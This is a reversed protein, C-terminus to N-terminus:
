VETESVTEESVESVLSDLIELLEGGNAARNLMAVMLEQSM